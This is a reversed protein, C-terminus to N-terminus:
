TANSLIVKISNHMIILCSLTCNLNAKLIHNKYRLLYDCQILKCQASQCEPSKDEIQAKNLGGGVRGM